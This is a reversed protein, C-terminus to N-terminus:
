RGLCARPPAPPTPSSVWRWSILYDGPELTSPIVVKDVVNFAHYKDATCSARSRSTEGATLDKATPSCM